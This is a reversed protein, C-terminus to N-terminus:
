AAQARRHGRRSFPRSARPRGPSRWSGRRQRRHSIGRSVNGRRLPRVFCRRGARAFLERDSELARPYKEYDEGPGFQKPNVFISVVVPSAERRAKEVLSLHGAHLAGMTPVFGIVRGQERAQRSVQKMWEVTHIVEVFRSARKSSPPSPPRERYFVILDTSVPKVGLQRLMTTVQGRHYTGHNALHQLVERYVNRHPTARPTAINLPANSIPLPSSTRRLRAPRASGGGLTGWLDGSRHVSRDQAFRHRHPRSVTRELDM